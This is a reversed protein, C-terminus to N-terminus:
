VAGKDKSGERVAGGWGLHEARPGRLRAEAGRKVREFMRCSWLNSQSRRQIVRSAFVPSRIGRRFKACSQISEPANTLLSRAARAFVVVRLRIGRPPYM